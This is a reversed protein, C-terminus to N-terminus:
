RIMRMLDQLAYFEPNLVRPINVITSILGAFLFIFSVVVLAGLMIRKLDIVDKGYSKDDFPNKRIIITITMLIIGVLFAVCSLLFLNIQQQVLWPWVMKGTMGIKEGLKDLYTTIQNIEEPNM